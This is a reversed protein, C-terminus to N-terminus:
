KRNVKPWDTHAVRRFIPHSLENHFNKAFQGDSNHTVRIDVAFLPASLAVLVNNAKENSFSSKM